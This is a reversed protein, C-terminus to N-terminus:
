RLLTRIINRVMFRLAQNIPGPIFVFEKGSRKGYTITSGAAKITTARPPTVLYTKKADQVGSMLYIFKHCLSLAIFFM